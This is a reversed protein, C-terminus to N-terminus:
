VSCADQSKVLFDKISALYRGNLTFRRWLILQGVICVLPLILVVAVVTARDEEPLVLSGGGTPQATFPDGAAQKLPVVRSLLAFGVM